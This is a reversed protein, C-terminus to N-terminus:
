KLNKTFFPNDKLADIIEEQKKCTENFSTTEELTLNFWEGNAKSNAYKNHLMTEIRFPYDTEHYAVLHLSTANGTQLEKIRKDITKRTVGIKYLNNASDCILYVYGSM